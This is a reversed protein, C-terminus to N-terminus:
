IYRQKGYIYIYGSEMYVDGFLTRTYICTHVCVCVCMWNCNVAWQLMGAQSLRAHRFLLWM